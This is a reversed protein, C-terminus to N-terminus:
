LLSYPRLHQEQFLVNVFIYRLDMPTTMLKTQKNQIESITTYQNSKNKM